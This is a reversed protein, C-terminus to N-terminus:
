SCTLYFYCFIEPKPKNLKQNKNKDPTVAKFYKQKSNTEM